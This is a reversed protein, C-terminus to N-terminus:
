TNQGFGIIILHNTICMKNKKVMDDALIGGKIKSKEKNIMWSVGELQHKMLSVKIKDLAIKENIDQKNIEKVMEKLNEHVLTPDNEKNLDPKIENNNLNQQEKIHDFFIM